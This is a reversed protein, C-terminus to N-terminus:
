NLSSDLCRKPHSFAGLTKLNGLFNLREGLGVRNGGATKEKLWSDSKVM